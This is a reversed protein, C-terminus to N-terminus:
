RTSWLHLLAATSLPSSPVADPRVPRHPRTSATPM